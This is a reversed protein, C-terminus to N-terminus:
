DKLRQSLPYIGISQIILSLFVVGFCLALLTDAKGSTAAELSLLLVVSMTGRIGSWTVLIASKWGLTKRWLPFFQVMGSIVFFRIVLSAIFLLAIWGWLNWAIHDMMEVGMMLFVISLLSPEVVDWFGALSERYHDEKNTHNFEWSLMIGAAVTSLVGSVGIYEALHFNGYALVISLMVQVEKHHTFHVAKSVIWGFLIGLVSGGISVYLFEGLFPWFSFAQQNTFVGLLVTFLVVSTGDNIMSEGDVVDAVKEDNSSSKLISVVSVPDTPTLISAILLAGIFTISLVSGLVVYAFFGLLIATLVLGVTSLAAIIGAHSKLAQPSYRYASIFLLAPLFIDYLVEKTVELNQFFPLFSLGIGLIFLVTPVPINKQKKDLTFVTYGIFLLIIVQPITM